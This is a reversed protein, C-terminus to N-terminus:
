PIRRIKRMVFRIPATLRWSTSAHLDAVRQEAVARDHEAATLQRQMDAGQMELAIVKEREETLRHVLHLIDGLHTDYQTAADAELRAVRADHYRTSLGVIQAALANALTDAGPAGGDGDGGNATRLAAVEQCVEPGWFIEVRERGVTWAADPGHKIEPKIEPKTEPKTEPRAAPKTGAPATGTGPETAHVVLVGDAALGRRWERVAQEDLSGTGSLIILGFHGEAGLRPLALDPVQRQMRAPDCAAARESFDDSVTGALHVFTAPPMRDKGHVHLGMVIAETAPGVTVIRAPKSVSCIWSVLPLVCLADTGMMIETEAEQPALVIDIAAQRLTSTKSKVM